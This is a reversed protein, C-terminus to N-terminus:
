QLSFEKQLGLQQKFSHQVELTYATPDKQYSIMANTFNHCSTLINQIIYAAHHHSEQM